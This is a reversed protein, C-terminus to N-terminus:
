ERIVYAELLDKTRRLEECEDASLKRIRAGCYGEILIDIALISM